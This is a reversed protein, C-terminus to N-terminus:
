FFKLHTIMHYHVAIIIRLYHLLLIQKGAGTRM